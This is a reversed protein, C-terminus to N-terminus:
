GLLAWPRIPLERVRVGTAAAIANAIAPAVTIISSEGLGKSGFPGPGDGREIFLSEVVRPVDGALPVRYDVPSPNTLYGDEFDLAETLAHGVAMVAGGVEQGHAGHPNIVRGADAVTVYQLVEVAGTHPDVAVRAAGVSGEWYGARMGFATPAEPADQDVTGVGVIEGGLGSAPGNVAAGVADADAPDVDDGAVARLQRLVDEAARQVAGGLHVTTRSSSTRQDFPTVGTDVAAVRVREYPICLTEAAVQALVTHSGQGLEVGSAVVTASGDRHLRVIARSPLRGSATNKVGVAVGVGTLRGDPLREGRARGVRDVAMELATPLDCDLPLDGEAFDDGLELLNALRFEVADIGLAEAIEDMHCECGHIPQSAGFGRYAGAPVKNTYVAYADVQLNPIRYPGPARYGAQRIVRPGQDAYAGTDFLLEIKRAVIRGDTIGSTFRVIAGHRGSSRFSEEVTLELRVPRNVAVAAAAAIPVVNVYEKSGFGGGVYPVAVRISSEPRGLLGALMRVMLFPYQNPTHVVLGDGDPVVTVVHNELAYHQLPALRYEHSFVHEAEALAGDPDGRLDHYHGAVNRGAEAGGSWASGFEGGETRGHLPAADDALADGITGLVPLPDLDLHVLAAAARAAEPNAALVVAVPEGEYRVVDQALIPTDRVVPGFRTRALVRALDDITLVAVVDPADLAAATEVALIRAHPLPSRVVAAHLAGPVHIDAGYCATGTVKGRGDVRAAHHGVTRLAQLEDVIV